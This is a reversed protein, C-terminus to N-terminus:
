LKIIKKWEQPYGMCDYISQASITHLQKELKNFEKSMSSIFEKVDSKKLLRAIIIAIAFADNIGSKYSGDANRPLGLVSINKISKTHLSNKFKIDYFREDHACLNRALGSIKMYKHLEMYDISFYKSINKKDQEKLYYFFNTIKGFTLVNVLVWLPIYGHNVMYHTVVQHHKTMQRAIEQQIDGILKTIQAINKEESIKEIKKIDKNFDLQNSRAIRKLEKKNNSPGNDFNEVKLYNDYGYKKSFEYAIVSKINNEIKLLYKLYIIRINRDFEYLAKLENFETGKLYVEDTKDTAKTKIFPEKYGNVVNYYNEKELVRKATSGNSIVLGRSRLIRLQSNHTKFEKKKMIFGRISFLGRTRLVGSSSSAIM